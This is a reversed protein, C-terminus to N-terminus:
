EYEDEEWRINCVQCTLWGAHWHGLDSVTHESSCRLCKPKPAVEINKVETEPM